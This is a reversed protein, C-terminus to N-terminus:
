KVLASAVHFIIFHKPLSESKMKRSTITQLMRLLAWSASLKGRIMFRVKVQSFIASRGARCVNAMCAFLVKEMKLCEGNMMKLHILIRTGDWIRTLKESCSLNHRLAM